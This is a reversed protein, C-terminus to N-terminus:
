PISCDGPEDVPYLLWVGTKKITYVPEYHCLLPTTVWQVWTDNEAGWGEDEDSFRIRQPDSVILAFRQNSIDEYFGEFYATEGSMAKDMVLKKEYDPVLPVEGLYGFTLLQRQDMFLIECGEALVRDTEHGLLELTWETKDQPPLELPVAGVWPMFAPIAVALLLTLKVGV